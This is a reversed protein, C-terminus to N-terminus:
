RGNKIATEDKEDYRRNECGKAFADRENHLTEAKGNFAAVRAEYDDILKDRAQAQENYTQVAEVNTRDLMALREKLQVGLRAIEAKDSELVARVRTAEEGQAHVREHLAMCARLQARTLLPAGAKGKGFSSEKSKDAGQAGTVTLLALMMAVASLRRPNMTDHIHFAM